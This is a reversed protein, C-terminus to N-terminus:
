WEFSQVIIIGEDKARQLVGPRAYHTILLPVIETGPRATAVAKVKDTLQRFIEKQGPRDKRREDMQMKTEGVLLIPQGNRMGQGFINIEEGGIDTRVLRYTLDIGYKDKLFAPLLRYAENELAYAMGRSLGGLESRTENLGKALLRMEVALESMSTELKAMRVESNKQSEALEKLEQKIEVQISAIEKLDDSIERVVAKLENFDSTKVLDRYSDQIVQTLVVAQPETFVRGLTTRIEDTRTDILTLM